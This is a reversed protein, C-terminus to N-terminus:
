KSSKLADILGEQMQMKERHMQQMAALQRRDEQMRTENAQKLIDNHHDLSTMLHDMSSMVKAQREKEEERIENLVNLVETNKRKRPTGKKAENPLESQSADTSPITDLVSVPLVQFLTSLDVCHIKCPALGAGGCKEM